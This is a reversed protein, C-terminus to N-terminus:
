FHKLSLVLQIISFSKLFYIRSLRNRILFVEDEVEPNIGTDKFKELRNLIIDDKSPMEQIPFIEKWLKMVEESKTFFRHGGLDMRNGNYRHTRSIGGIYESAELIVPKYDSTTLIKYATALGAPGAGIVIINKDNNM